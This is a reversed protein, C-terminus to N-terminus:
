TPAAAGGGFNVIMEGAVVAFFVATKNHIGKM